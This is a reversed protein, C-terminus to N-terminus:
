ANKQGGRNEGHARSILDTYSVYKSAPISFEKYVGNEIFHYVIVDLRRLFQDFSDTKQQEPKVMLAYVEEPPYVSTIVVREWLPYADQYRSHIARHPYIDLVNLLEQWSGSPKYEDMFLIPPAGSEMYGDLWGSTNYGSMYIEEPGYQQCLREYVYTKGTGSAGVHWERYIQKKIPAEKLKKDADASKIMKDYKRYRFNQRMIENPTCGDEILEAIIDLDSRHGQKVQINEKGIIYLVQEGTEDYPPLKQIYNMLNTKGGKCTEVHSDYLLRAVADRTTKEGFLAGHIHFLGNASICATFCGTRNQGSTSWRQYFFNLVTPYDQIQQETLGAKKMNAVHITVTWYRSKIDVM